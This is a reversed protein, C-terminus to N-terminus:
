ARHPDVTSVGPLGPSGAAIGSLGWENERTVRFDDRVTCVPLASLGAQCPSVSAPGLYAAEGVVNM